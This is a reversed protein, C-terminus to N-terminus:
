KEKVFMIQVNGMKIIDGDNLVITDGDILLQGGVYTLNKNNANKITTRLIIDTENFIRGVEIISHMRSMTRDTTQIQISAKSTSAARGITNIGMQLPYYTGNLLLKGMVCDTPMVRTGYEQPKNVPSVPIDSNQQASQEDNFNVKIQANCNPCSIEKESSETSNRVDLKVGCSPCIIRIKQM